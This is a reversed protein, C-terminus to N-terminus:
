QAGGEVGVIVSATGGNRSPVVKYTLGVTASEGAMPALAGFVQPDRTVFEEGNEAIVSWLKRDEDRVVEMVTITTTEEQPAVLSPSSAAGTDSAAPAPTPAAGDSSATQPPVAPSLNSGIRKPESIPAPVDYDMAEEATVIGRLVDPFADRVAFGRARMMLMRKPYQKWPGAKGALGAAKADAWSFTRRLPAKGRRTITCVAVWADPADGEPEEEIFEACDRHGIVLGKVADGWLSPRGNIVAISQLAQLPAIGVEMGLQMAIVIDAPKGRYADPVLQSKSIFEAVKCAQEFTDVKLFGPREPAIIAAEDRTALATNSTTM